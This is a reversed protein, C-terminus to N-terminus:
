KLIMFREPRYGTWFPRGPQHSYVIAVVRGIIREESIFGLLRSDTQNNNGLAQIWYYDADACNRLSPLIDKQGLYRVTDGPLARVRGILTKNHTSDRPDDYAVIDGREIANWAIRGYGFLSNGGGTRLGYSWRNVLIRDGAEFDPQLGEGEVTYVTVVLARFLLMLLLAVALALLFKLTAKM